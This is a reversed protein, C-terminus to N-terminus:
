KEELLTKKEDREMEALKLENLICTCTCHILLAFQKGNLRKRKAQARNIRSIRMVQILLCYHNLIFLVQHQNPHDLLLHFQNLFLVQQQNPLGDTPPVSKSTPGSAANSSGATSSVSLTIEIKLYTNTKM